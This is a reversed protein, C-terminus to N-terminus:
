AFAEQCKRMEGCGMIVKSSWSLHISASRVCISVDGASPADWVRTPMENKFFENALIGADALVRVVGTVVQRRADMEAARHAAAFSTSDENASPESPHEGLVDLATLLKRRLKISALNCKRRLLQGAFAQQLVILMKTM